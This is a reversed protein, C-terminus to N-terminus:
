APVWGARSAKPVPFGSKQKRSSCPSLYPAPEAIAQGPRASVWPRRHLTRTGSPLTCPARVVGWPKASGRQATSPSGAGGRGKGM